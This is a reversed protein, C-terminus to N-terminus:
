EDGITVGMVPGELTADDGDSSAAFLLVAVGRLDGAVVGAVAADEGEMVGIWSGM